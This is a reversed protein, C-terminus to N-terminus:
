ACLEVYEGSNQSYTLHVGDRVTMSLLDNKYKGVPNKIVFLSIEKKSITLRYVFYTDGNSSASSWESPTMHFSNATIKGM